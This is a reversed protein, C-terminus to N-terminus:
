LLRDEQKEKLDKTKGSAASVARRRGRLRSPRRYRWLSRHDQRGPAPARWLAAKASAATSASKVALKDFLAVQQNSRSLVLGPDRGTSGGSATALVTTGSQEPKRARVIHHLEKYLPKCHHGELSM